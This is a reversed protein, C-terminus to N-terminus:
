KKTKKTAKEKKKAKPKEDKFYQDIIEKPFYSAPESYVVKKAM